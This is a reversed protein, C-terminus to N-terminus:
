LMCDLFPSSWLRDGVPWLEQCFVQEQTPEGYAAAEKLAHGDARAHPGGKVASHIDAGSPEKM